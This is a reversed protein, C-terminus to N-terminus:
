VSVRESVYVRVGLLVRESVHVGVRVSYYACRLCVGVLRCM